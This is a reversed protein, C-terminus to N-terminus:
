VYGSFARLVRRKRIDMLTTPPTPNALFGISLAAPVIEHLLELRKAILPTSLFFMGTANGSPRNFSAVLGVEVPDVSSFFVIPITSTASKAALAPAIGAALIVAVHRRVLDAALAPLRDFRLEAQRHLIEVNRGEVYGFEGLGLRFPPIVPNAAGENGPSLFGIVPMAPQQARAAIPLVAASGLGAIFDRRNM